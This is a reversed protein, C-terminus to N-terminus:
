RVSSIQKVINHIFIFYSFMEPTFFFTFPEKENLDSKLDTFIKIELM